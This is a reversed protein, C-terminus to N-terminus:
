VRIRPDLLDRVGDGLLNVAIVTFMLALGPFTSIWWATALSERGDNIMSGWEIAPPKAGLGLFSLSAGSLIAGAIALTGLVILPAIVNPLIHIFMIRRDNCGLSRAADVYLFERASLVTGRTVRAFTPILAVGIAVMAKATNSGQRTGLAAVITLALIIGPFAMMMDIFRMIILDGLRPYYGAVLGIVGGISLGIAVPILGMLLSSRTGEIIRSFVDRGHADTGLRHAASPALKADLLRSKYPDRTEFASPALACVVVVMLMLLGAVANPQRLLRRLGALRRPGRGELALAGESVTAANTAM